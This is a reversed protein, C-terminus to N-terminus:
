FTGSQSTNRFFTGHELMWGAWSLLPLCAAAPRSQAGVAGGLAASGPRLDTVKDAAVCLPQYAEESRLCVVHPLVHSSMYTGVRAYVHTHVVRTCGGQEGM